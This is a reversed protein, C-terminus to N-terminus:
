PGIYRQKEFALQQQQPKKKGRPHSETKDRALELETRQKYNFISDRQKIQQGLNQRLTMKVNSFGPIQM